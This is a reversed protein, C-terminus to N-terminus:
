RGSRASHHIWQALAATAWMVVGVTWKERCRCWSVTRSRARRRYRALRGEIVIRVEIVLVSAVLDQLGSVQFSALAGIARAARVAHAVLRIVHNLPGHIIITIFRFKAQGVVRQNTGEGVVVAEIAVSEEGVGDVLTGDTVFALVVAAIGSQKNLGHVRLYM